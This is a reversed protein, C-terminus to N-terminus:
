RRPPRRRKALVEASSADPEDEAKLDAIQRREDVLERYRARWYDRGPEGGLHTETAIIELIREDLGQERGLAVFADRHPYLQRVAGGVPEPQAPEDFPERPLRGTTLWEVRVNAARAIKTATDLQVDTGQEGRLIGSIHGKSKLGAAIALASENWPRGDARRGNDLIWLLGSVFPIKPDVNPGLRRTVSLFSDSRPRGLRKPRNVLISTHALESASM